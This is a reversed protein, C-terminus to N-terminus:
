DEELWHLILGEIKEPSEEALNRLAELGASEKTSIAAEPIVEEILEEPKKEEEVETPIEEPKEAEPVPTLKGIGRFIPRLIMFYAFVIVILGFALQALTRYLNRRQAVEPAVEKKKPLQSIAFPVNKVEVVDGRTSNYGITGKVISEIEQLKAKTWPQPQKIGAKQKNDVVVSATIREIHGPVRKTKLMSKGVVYSVTSEEKTEKLPIQNQLINSQPQQSPGPPSQTTPTTNVNANSSMGPTGGVIKALRETTETTMQENQIVNYPEYEEKTVEFSDFNMDVSVWATLKGPGVVPSLASLIRNRYSEEVAHRYKLQESVSEALSKKEKLLVGKATDILEVDEEKLGEVASAVLHIIGNIQNKNLQEGPAITLLISAKAPKEEEIFVSPQPIVLHVRADSVKDMQTITNALEGQLARQYQIHQAFDTMGFRTEDFLEFGTSESRPLGKNALRMRAQRIQGQPVLITKGDESTQYPIGMNDLEIEVNTRDDSSLNSYLERYEVRNPLFILAILGALIAIGVLVLAVKRGLTLNNWIGRTQELLNSLFNPM